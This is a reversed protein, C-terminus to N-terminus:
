LRKLIHALNYFYFWVIIDHKKQVNKVWKLTMKNQITQPWKKGMKFDNIQSNKIM